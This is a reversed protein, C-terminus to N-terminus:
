KRQQGEKFFRNLRLRYENYEWYHKELIPTIHEKDALLKTGLTDLLVRFPTQRLIKFTNNETTM